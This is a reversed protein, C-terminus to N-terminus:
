GNEVTAADCAVWFGLLQCPFLRFYANDQHWVKATSCHPPKMLLMSQVLNLRPGLLAHAIELWRPHRALRAFFANHVAMRFLKRVALELQDVAVEGSMVRPEYQILEDPVDASHEVIHEIEAFVAKIEGETLLAPVTFYGQQHFQQLYENEM